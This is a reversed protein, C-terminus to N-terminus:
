KKPSYSWIYPVINGFQVKVTVKSGTAYASSDRFIPAMWAQKVVYTNLAQLNKVQAAGQTTVIKTFLSKTTADTSAFTNWMGTGFYGNADFWDSNLPGGALVAAYGKTQLKHILDPIPGSEPKVTIGVAAMQQIVAAYLDAGFFGGMDPIELTFGKEYGAEALLAKAKSVNYPYESDLAKVYAAGKPSFLQTTAQGTGGKRFAAALSARDLAYNIAQRVKVNGIAKNVTGERDILQFGVWDDLKTQVTLGAGRAQTTQSQDITAGDVQGSQVANLSAVTETITKITISGFKQLDKSWYNPNAKYKYSSGTVSSAADYIYPGTGVPKTKLSASTLSKPSAMMGVGTALSDLLGPDPQKLTIVVANAGKASVSKFSSVAGALVSKGAMQHKLNAVAAAANFSSGDTFKVGSRLQLTLQTMSKDYEWKTALFPVIKGTPEQRLLSDFVPQFYQILLGPDAEVTDFSPLGASNALTLKATPTAANAAIVNGGLMMASVTAAIVFARFGKKVINM